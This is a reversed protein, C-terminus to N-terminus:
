TQLYNSYYIDYFHSLGNLGQGWTVSPRVHDGYIDNRKIRLSRGRVPRQGENGLHGWGRTAMRVLSADIIDRFARWNRPKPQV